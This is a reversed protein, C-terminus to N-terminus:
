SIRSIKNCNEQWGRWKKPVKLNRCAPIKQRKEQRVVSSGGCRWTWTRLGVDFYLSWYDCLRESFCEIPQALDLITLKVCFNHCIQHCLVIEMFDLITVLAMCLPSSIGMWQQSFGKEISTTLYFHVSIGKTKCFYNISVIMNLFTTKLHNYLFNGM